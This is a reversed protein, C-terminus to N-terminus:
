EYAISYAFLSIIKNVCVNVPRAPMVVSQINTAGSMGNWTGAASYGDPNKDSFMIDEPLVAYDSETVDAVVTEWYTLRNAYDDTSSWIDDRVIDYDPEYSSIRASSESSQHDSCEKVTTHDVYIESFNVSLPLSYEAECEDGVVMTQCAKSGITSCMEYHVPVSLRSSFTSMTPNKAKFTNSRPLPVPRAKRDMPTTVMAPPVSIKDTIIVATSNGSENHESHEVDATVFVDSCEVQVTDRSIIDSLCSDCVASTIGAETLGVDTLVNSNEDCNDIDSQGSSCEDDKNNSELCEEDTAHTYEQMVDIVSQPEVVSPLENVNEDSDSETHSEADNDSALVDSSPAYVEDYILQTDTASKESSIPIESLDDDTIKQDVDAFYLASDYSTVNETKSGEPSMFQGDESQTGSQAAYSQTGSNDLMSHEPKIDDKVTVSAESCCGCPKVEDLVASCSPKDDFSEEPKCSLDEM